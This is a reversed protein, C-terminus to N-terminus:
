RGLRKKNEEYGQEGLVHIALVDKDIGNDFDYDLIAAIQLLESFPRQLIAPTQAAMQDIMQVYHHSSQAIKVGQQHFRDIYEAVTLVKAQNDMLAM